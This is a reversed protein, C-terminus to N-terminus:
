FCLCAARFPVDAKDGFASMRSAFLFTRMPGIASVVVQAGSLLSDGWRVTNSHGRDHALAGACDNKPDQAKRAVALLLRNYKLPAASPFYNRKLVDM